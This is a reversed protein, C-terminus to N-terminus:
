GHYRVVLRGGRDKWDLHVGYRGYHYRVDGDRQVRVRECEANPVKITVQVQCHCPKCVTVVKEISCPAPCGKYEVAPPCPVHCCDSSIVSDTPAPMPAPIPEQARALPIAGMALISIVVIAGLTVMVSGRM